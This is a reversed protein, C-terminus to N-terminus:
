VLESFMDNDLYRFDHTSSFEVYHANQRPPQNTREWLQATHTHAHTHTHHWFAPSPRPTHTHCRTSLVYFVPSLSSATKPTVNQSDNGEKRTTFTSYYCLAMM